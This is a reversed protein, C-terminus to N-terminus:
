IARVILAYSQPHRPVRHARVVVEYTGAAPSKWEVQEVNNIRDFGNLHPKVNGHRESARPGRVILDLDNQLTPGPPDTWVLTVKLLRATPGIAVAIREEDGVDLATAEDNVLFTAPVPSRGISAPVDVRGFGEENNPIRGSESPVYQGAINRAGNVLLAKVLAASPQAIGRSAAPFERIVAACGAVLPTAM